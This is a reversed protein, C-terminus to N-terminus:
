YRQTQVDPKSFLEPCSLDETLFRVHGDAFLVHAGQPHYSAIGQGVSDNLRRTMQSTHLDRPESWEIGSNVVEAVQIIRPMSASSSIIGQREFSWATSPGLIGVYSTQNPITSRLDSPCTYFEIVSRRVSANENHNWRLQFNYASYLSQNELYPLILVRWSHMPCGDDDAVQAPPYSKFDNYYNALALGIIQLNVKCQSQLSIDGGGFPSLIMSVILSAIILLLIIAKFWQM